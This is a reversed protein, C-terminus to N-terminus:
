IADHDLISGAVITTLVRGTLTEDEFPTNKSRSRIKDKEVIWPKQPDFVILDAPAGKSLRGAPLGLRDAPNCTMTALLKSLSIDENLVLRMGAGLMTELGLAGDEAEAFPHRKTEVDQPNHDSMIIDITGDALAKVMAQRDDETRLPPSMKHFTRYPGIDNENLTLHNISIGATVNLGDNKAKQIAEASQPCSILRAHYKGKAMAVLRMDREIAVFEAERPIGGLGLWSARLGANMVGSGALDKDQAQHVVLADFDRAYTLLRVLVSSNTIPLRDNSFAIAGAEKLLGIESMDKGALGKTLAAMPHVNVIATDRARRLMFDVLAPDDIVPDTNPSTLITTVGGVAAARSASELTERHEAGPEGVSVGMDILGPAVVAGHCDVTKAGDPAGQNLAEAGAALITGDQVIVAGAEDVNNAPDIIRANTLVLPNVNKYM